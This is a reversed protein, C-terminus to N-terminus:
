RGVGGRVRRQFWDRGDCDSTSAGVDKRENM